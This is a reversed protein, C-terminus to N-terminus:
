NLPQPKEGIFIDISRYEDDRALGYEIEPPMGVVAFARKLLSLQPMTVDLNEGSEKSPTVQITIGDMPEDLMTLGPLGGVAWGAESFLMQLEKALALAEQNGSPSDVM